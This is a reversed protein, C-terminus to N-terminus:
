DFTVFENLQPRMRSVPAIGNARKVIFGVHGMDKGYDLWMRQFKAITLTRNGWAPDALMVRDGMVGRFIVFHNYGLADIPVMIPANEILDSFDLQGLGEGKFGHAQVYRKLDLLSFGEQIQVLKPNKIYEKRGMLGNAVQKETVADGWEYNLLTALAAAGCSLDWTQIIVDHHRMELLSRVPTARESAGTAQFAHNVHQTVAPSPNGAATAEEAPELAAYQPRRNAASSLPAPAPDSDASSGRAADFAAYQASPRPEFFGCGCLTAAVLGFMGATRWRQLTRM